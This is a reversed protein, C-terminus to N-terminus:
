PYGLRICPMCLLHWAMLHRKNVFNVMVFHNLMITIGRKSKDQELLSDRSEYESSSSLVNEKVNSSSPVYPILALFLSIDPSMIM